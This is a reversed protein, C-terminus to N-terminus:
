IKGRRGTYRKMLICCNTFIITHRRVPELSFRLSRTHCRLAETMWRAKDWWISKVDLCYQLWAGHARLPKHALAPHLWAMEGRLAKLGTGVTASRPDRRPRESVRPGHIGWGRLCPPAKRGDTHLCLYNLASREARCYHPHNLSHECMEWRQYINNNM